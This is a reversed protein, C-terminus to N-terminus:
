KAKIEEAPTQIQKMMAANMTVTIEAKIVEEKVYQDIYKSAPKFVTCCWLVSTIILLLTFAIYGILGMASTATLAFNGNAVWISVLVLGAITPIMGFFLLFTLWAVRAWRKAGYYMYNGVSFKYVVITAGFLGLFWDYNPEGTAVPFTWFYPDKWVFWTGVAYLGICFFAFWDYMEYLWIAWGYPRALKMKKDANKMKKQLFYERYWTSITRYKKPIGAFTVIVFTFLGLWQLPTM